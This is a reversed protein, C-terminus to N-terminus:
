IIMKYNISERIFRRSKKFTVTPAAIRDGNTLEAV